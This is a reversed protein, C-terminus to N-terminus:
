IALVCKFSLYQRLDINKNRNWKETQEENIIRGVRLLKLWFILFIRSEERKGKMWTYDMLFNM